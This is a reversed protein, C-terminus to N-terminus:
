PSNLAGKPEKQPIKNDVRGILAEAEGRLLGLTLRQNWTQNIKAREPSPQDIERVAKALWEKALETHGLRQQTMALFLFTYAMTKAPDKAKLFAAEAETLRRASEQFRGARYLVAGLTTLRNSNDRDAALTKETLQVLRSWDDLGDPIQVCAWATTDVAGPSLSSGFHALMDACAKRYGPQDGLQLCALARAYRPGPDGPDLEIAQSLSAIAKDWQSLNAFASGRNFWLVSSKADLELGKDYDARANDYQGLRSYVVGRNAWLAVQKPELEIAKSFDALAKEYQHLETYTHGRNAWATAGEPDLEIAKNLDALAKDYQHLEKYRFGRDNFAQAYKPDLEIAKSYDALAKDYQHLDAYAMARNNWGVANEPDLAIAKSYDALAKDYQHLDAYAMARNNWGMANEPDLAIATSYEAIAEDLAGTGQLTSAVLHRMMVSRPRVAMAATYYRLADSYRPPRFGDRNLAGLGDNLWFDEPRHRHAERLVALAKDLAGLERLAQGLLYATAPPVERLSVADALKELAPRDRGLLAERFRNRWDDPDAQRAIEVLKKWIPDEDGGYARKHMAAWQDLAQVLSERICTRGIRAAAEAPALAEIDIDFEQFAKAFREDQKRGWFFEEESSALQQQLTHETGGRIATIVSSTVDPIPQLYIDELRQARMLDKQLELLRPPRETRGAAALLKEAREVVELAEPWKGREMLPGTEELTGQVAQDLAEERALREREIGEERAARDRLAWGIGGAIGAFALVVCVAMALATRQRRAFKRFKYWASPPCAQVAEDHLYRQVDAALGSATEYRRNRDKELAKMVIWDLDGRVLGSLKRPELSRNAAISPLEETTSLRTSPKPPEEERIIRLMEDFAAAQLRKRDFPTTGTLLEYLLVGLAYTDSRTDIDLANLKAQEPSMYEVTGVIQGFETFMTRDTLKPGTAKAVGFDIVKAVPKDDYEAVLINSPKLDRHIIGKQHAHQVAQCVPVFLELRQRLTLRHEDCYRTIPVGKVLEMVFYPRGTETTGADLVKAIHPHDMLALAQREAEFRSIVQRSDMGPKTIKLAVKRQVPQTQEAMYVTGMGGEGIQQLLKYPGLITGPRETIPEDVTSAVAPAPCDLLSNPQQHARLLMDVRRRLAEDGACAQQLFAGWQDPTCQEVAELFISRAKQADANM